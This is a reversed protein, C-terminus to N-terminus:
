PLDPPPSTAPGSPSRAHSDASNQGLAVLMQPDTRLKAIAQRRELDDEFWKPDATAGARCLLSVVVYWSDPRTHADPPNGWGYIAWELPTGGHTPDIPNVPAGRDLLLSVIDAHGAFAAWHLATAGSQLKTAPDFGNRLLFEVVSNWGFECAWTFGDTLQRRTAPPQLVGAADFSQRV